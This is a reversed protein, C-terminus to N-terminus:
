ILLLNVYMYLVEIDEYSKVNYEHNKEDVESWIERFVRFYCFSCLEVVTVFKPGRVINSNCKILFHMCKFLQLDTAGPKSFIQISRCSANLDIIIM